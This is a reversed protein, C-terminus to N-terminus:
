INEGNVELQSLSPQKCSFVVSATSISTNPSLHGNVRVAQQRGNLFSLWLILHPYIDIQLLKTGDPTASSYQLPKFPGCLGEECLGNAEGPPEAHLLPLGAEEMGRPRNTQSISTPKGVFWRKCSPFFLGKM